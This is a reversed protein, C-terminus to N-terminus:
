NSAVSSSAIAYNCSPTKNIPTTPRTSTMLRTQIEETSNITWWWKLIAPHSLEIKSQKTKVHAQVHPLESVHVYERIDPCLANTSLKLENMNCQKKSSNIWVQLTFLSASVVEKHSFKPVQPTTLRSVCQRRVRRAGGWSRRSLAHAHCRRDSSRVSFVENLESRLSLFKHSSNISHTFAM